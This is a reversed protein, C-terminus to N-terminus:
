LRHANRLMVTLHHGLLDLEAAPTRDGISSELFSATLVQVRTPLQEEYRGIAGPACSCARRPDGYYGCPCPNMAAISVFADCCFEM